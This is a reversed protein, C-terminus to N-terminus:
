EYLLQQRLHEKSVCHNQFIVEIVANRTLNNVKGFGLPHDSSWRLVDGVDLDDGTLEVVSYGDGDTLVAVMGCRQNIQVVQGQM